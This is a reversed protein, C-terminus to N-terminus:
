ARFGNPSPTPRSRVADLDGLDIPVVGLAPTGATALEDLVPAARSESRCALLLSREPPPSRGPPPRGMHSSAGTIVVTTGDLDAM